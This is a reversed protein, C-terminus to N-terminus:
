PLRQPFVRQRDWSSPTEVARAAMMTFSAGPGTMVDAGVHEFRNESLTTDLASGFMPDEVLLMIGTELKGFRNETLRDDSGSLIIGTSGFVDRGPGTFHNNAIQAGFAQHAALPINANEIVNDAMEVNFTNYTAIGVGPIPYAGVTFTDQIRNKRITGTISYQPEAFNYGGFFLGWQDIAETPGAGIITNDVVNVTLNALAPNEWYAEAFITIGSNNYNFIRNHEITVTRPTAGFNVVLMGQGQYSPQGDIIPLTPQGFGVDKVINDRIDGGSNIFVIGSLFPNNEASNAGDITLGRLSVEAEAVLIIPRGEVGAVLSLTDQMNDPAQLVVDSRGVLTLDKGLITVQEVYKGARITIRDGSDAADVAAQISTFCRGAGKPHVCPGAAYAVSSGLIAVGLLVILLLQVGKKFLNSLVVYNMVAEQAHHIYRQLVM